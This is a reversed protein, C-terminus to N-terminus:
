RKLTFHAKFEKRANTIPEDYEVMFWYDSTPMINGNFTGNWGQGTPSLQKLLKGYRDFIYIKATSGIGPINWTDNTGDGNPTFYLPYDIVFIPATIIGCGNKDRATITHAGASVNSFTGEDQWPGEDLSYEYVGIGTSVAEIVHNDAFVQTVLNVELMPPESEIVETSDTNSCNTILDTVTVSYTGEQSPMLSSNTASPIVTDNYSWEFSYNTMSLGTELVLPNLIESGNTNVCLIYSDELDFAPLPNVQLTLAAVAYCISTDTGLIADPTDNDVRAYIVQPNVINEYLTPLPNIDLNADAESEYYTVIYNSADQGDLIEIDQTTLDFQTSDNSPDGDTEMNDDCTAYLIPNMDSNAEAAEDVEINFSQTSISCGTVTNTITVFIQQPNTLNNYPSVLGNVGAEADAVNDHYSVIFQTPDQGNLVETDKTTLDFSDVGDTNLECQIFDTVAIVEPLPHVIITFNVVVYCGTTANTVRVYIEQEPTDINIYQTPDAIANAGAEADELSEHYTPTVGAEGNLILIEHETLDFVEVGDGTNIDDCLELDPLQDSPTPTPIPNVRITFTVTNYCGTTTNEARVFITQVTSTNTYPSVIPNTANEADVLTEYYTIAIGPQGNLIEANAEELTFAEREDGPNNYDCEELPAPTVLVPLPNVMLELSTLKYCGAVTTNDEVRVWLVQNFAETNTFGTPNTIANNGTAANVESTYYNVIYQMPDQGNLIEADKTRLDFTAFGDASLDDCEELSTPDILQPTPEVILQLEVLTACDTAITASEVRVYLTQTNISSNSFDTSTDIADANNEANALTEYYSVTLGPAGGTIENDADTLTFFGFGDNDPDCYRLPTPTFAIPAQEVVLELTTTDYCGTTQDEVRVYVIQGNITNTYPIPLPNMEADADAM